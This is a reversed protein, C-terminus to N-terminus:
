CSVAFVIRIRSFILCLMVKKVEDTCNVASGAKILARMVEINGAASLYHIALGNNFAFDKSSATDPIHNIPCIHIGSALLRM